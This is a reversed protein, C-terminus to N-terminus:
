MVASLQILRGAMMTATIPVAAAETAGAGKELKM